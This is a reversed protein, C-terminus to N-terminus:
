DEQHFPNPQNIMEELTYGSPSRVADTAADPIRAPRKRMPDPEGSTAVALNQGTVTVETICSDDPQLSM